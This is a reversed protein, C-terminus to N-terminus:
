IILKMNGYMVDKMIGCFERVMNNLQLVVDSKAAIGEVNEYGLNLAIRTARFVHFNNSIIGVSDTILGNEQEIIRKSFKLNEFTSTSKDEKLIREPDIGQSVMYKYMCEAESISEDSGQGGSVVFITHESEGAYEVAKDLRMKLVRSPENGKVHAGLVIVYKLDTDTDGAFGSLVFAEIVFFTVASAFIAVQILKRIKSTAYKNAIKTRMFFSLVFCAIAALLWVFFFGGFLGNYLFVTVFYLLCFIGLGQLLRSKSKNSQDLKDEKEVNNKKLEIKKPEKKKWEWKKWNSLKRKVIM